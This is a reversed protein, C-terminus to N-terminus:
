RDVEDGYSTKPLIAYAVGAVAIAKAIDLPVFPVVGLMIAKSIGVNLVLALHLTGIAYIIIVGGMMLIFQPLLGRSAVYRDTFEGIMFAAFIFGIIYGGTVGSLYAMGGSYDAFWPVGAAGIGLYFVQSLGGYRRGLLVGALLVAFVQGTIPVPTFPLFIKMQAMLGTLCAFTIALAVKQIVDLEHRWKFFNYRAGRYGDVFSGLEM